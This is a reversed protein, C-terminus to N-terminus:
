GSGARRKRQRRISAYILVANLAPASVVGVLFWLWEARAPSAIARPIGFVLGFLILWPVPHLIALGIGVARPRQSPSGLNRPLRGMAGLYDAVNKGIEEVHDRRNTWADTIAALLKKFSPRQSAYRDDPPYYTGAYFPTLAPTLFVSLPWGGGERTLVQLANMYITDIDPREERDVKICVFNANMVAATSDDEFSEHEM